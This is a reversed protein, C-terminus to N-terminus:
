ESFNSSVSREDDFTLQCPKTPFSSPLPCLHYRVISICTSVREGTTTEMYIYIEEAALGVIALNLWVLFCLLPIGIKMLRHRIAVDDKIAGYCASAASIRRYMIVVRACL